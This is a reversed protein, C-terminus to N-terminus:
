RLIQRAALGAFLGPQNALQEYSGSQTFEGNQMVLIRDASRITSLRHAVVVRTAKLCALRESILAQSRNDLASTAEDLLLIRPRNVIARALLVRQRQGGSLGGGGDSLITHLGMPMEKLEDELGALRAAELVEEPSLSLTRVINSAISGAMLRGSQLVVGMQRRVSSVNLGKLDHGDYYVGGSQPQEFGLLIRLLTSKGCGSEGVIAVFEGPMVRLSLDRLVPLQDPRYRFTVHSIEIEGALEPAETTTPGSEPTAELIPRLREYEPVIVLGSVIASGGGIGVVAVLALLWFLLRRRDVFSRLEKAPDTLSVALSSPLGPTGLKSEV